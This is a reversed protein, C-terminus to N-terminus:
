RHIFIQKQPDDSAKERMQAAGANGAMVIPRVHFYVFVALRWFAHGGIFHAVKLCCRSLGHALWFCNVAEGIRVDVGTLLLGVAVAVILVLNFTVLWGILNLFEAPFGNRRALKRQFLVAFFVAQLWGHFVM